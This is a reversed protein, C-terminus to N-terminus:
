GNEDPAEKTEELDIELVNIDDPCDDDYISILCAIGNQLDWLEESLNVEGSNYKETLRNYAGSINKRMGDFSVKM